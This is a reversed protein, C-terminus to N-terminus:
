GKKKIASLGGPHLEQSSAKEQRRWCRWKKGQPWLLPFAMQLYELSIGYFKNSIGHASLLSKYRQLFTGSMKEKFDTTLFTKINPSSAPVAGKSFPHLAPCQYFELQHRKRDTLARQLARPMSLQGQFCGTSCTRKWTIYCILVERLGALIMISPSNGGSTWWFTGTDRKGAVRIDPIKLKAWCPNAPLISGAPVPSAPQLQLSLSFNFIWYTPYLITDLSCLDFSCAPVSFPDHPQWLSSVTWPTYNMNIYFDSHLSDPCPPWHCSLLCMGPVSGLRCAWPLKGPLLYWGSKQFSSLTASVAIPVVLQGTILFQWSDELTASSGDCISFSQGQYWYAQVCSYKSYKTDRNVM